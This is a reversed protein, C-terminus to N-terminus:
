EEILRHQGQRIQAIRQFSIEIGKKQFEKALERVSAKSELIYRIDSDSLKVQPGAGGRRPGQARTTFGWERFRRYLTGVSVEFLLAMEPFSLGEDWYSKWASPATLEPPTQTM